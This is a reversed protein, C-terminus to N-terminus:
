KKIYQDFLCLWHILAGHLFHDQGKLFPRVFILFQPNLKGVVWLLLSEKDCM